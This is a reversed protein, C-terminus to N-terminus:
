PSDKQPEALIESLSLPPDLHGAEEPLLPIDWDKRDMGVVVPKYGHTEFVPIILKLAEIHIVGGRLIFEAGLSTCHYFIPKDAKSAPWLGWGWDVVTSKFIILPIELNM